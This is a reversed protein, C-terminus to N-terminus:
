FGSTRRLTECAAQLEADNCAAAARAALAASERARDFHNRAAHTRALFHLMWGEGRVDGLERRIALSSELCGLAEASEDLELAIEGLLALAHGELQRRGTRRHVALAEELRERAEHFRGSARLTAGLSNLMLGVAEEDGLARFVALGQEYQALAAGYEGRSWELVGIANRLRGEARRDGIAVALELAERQYGVALSPEALHRRTARGLGELAELEGAADGSERRIARAKAWAAMADADRGDREYAGALRSWVAAEGAQDKLRGFLVVAEELHPLAEARRGLGLLVEGLMRLSQVLGPVFEAWRTLEVAARYCELAETIRGSQLHIHAISTYHYSMQIPLRKGATQRARELYAMAREVDESERSVNALNHLLYCQKLEVDARVAPDKAAALIRDSLELGEFLHERAREYDGLGKLVHGLNSLDGVVAMEDGLSRDIALAEEVFPLAEADRGQHWRLLGLSRLTNRVGVADGLERRLRLSRDLAAEAVGFERLLTFLDGQRVYVEALKARDGAAELLAVLEDIIHQQRERHGLTECLREQRLLIDALRGRCEPGDPLKALWARARELTKLADAFQALSGSRDAAQLAYRVAEDWLEARSFHHALRDLHEELRDRHLREIAVGVRGHLERRRHELLGDYAVEQTLVHKFRYAADPVVRTQQILGASKLAQLANPLRGEDPLTHELLRRTFERGVVSALRLVERADRGLHDLRARIVAQVTDPVHLEDLAGRLEVVDGEVRLVGEELLRQCVEELFFPNGGSREHLLEGLGQPLHAARLMARFMALSSTPELARLVVSAHHSASEWEEVRGARTTVVVLLAHAPVLDAIEGLVARSADDAWHWDELLLVTPHRRASVTLLAAIASQMSTRFQEGRLHQPVPFDATPISLLHLYFPILEELEAGLERIRAVTDAARDGDAPADGVRLADRLVEIFPLYAASGGHAACRGQLPAAGREELRQRFEHLLRSKGIGAEGVVTVVRGTGARAEDLQACLLALERDRGTFPTLGRIRETAEIRTQLGSDGTVRSPVLPQARGGVALPPQPETWVFGEVLRRCEPSLWIEDAPALSALQAATLAASGTIALPAGRATSPRAIVVGTDVGARLRLAPAGRAELGVGIERVRERLELAARTARLPDDEHAAPLGFVLVMTEADARDVLGGHGAALLEAAERVGHAAQEAAVPGLREVLAPYGALQCAVVTAQRREGEPLVGGRSDRRARSAAVTRATSDPSPALAGALADLDLALERMSAYREDVRKALAARLVGELADPVRAERLEAWRPEADLIRERLSAGSDGGFPRAGALMEYLVVGLSWVDTRADVTGEGLQEPSMYPLTGPQAGTRTLTVDSLKAIGFDLIKVVGDVTVMLNAPKVDRHVIGREHAKALGDAAQRALAIAEAAPLPGRRLRDRVTEGEYCPMAIFLRGDDTEGIEHITCINPHDLAAAAQAEVRFRERAHADGVLHAPLFKLAVARGLAADWARHVVAMGGSGIVDRLEYRAVSRVLPAHMAPAPPAFRAVPRDLIGAREHAALLSEVERRLAPDDACARALFRTREGASVDLAELLFQLARSEPARSEDSRPEDTRPQATM